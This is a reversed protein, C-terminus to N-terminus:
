LGSAVAWEDFSQAPPMNLLKPDALLAPNVQPIITCRCNPHAPPRISDNLQYLTGNLDRCTPCVREDRAALWRYGLLVEENQRFIEIAGDNSAKTVVTRTVAQVRNFNARYGMRRDTSIGMTDRVRRMIDATGEGANMGSFISVSIRATLENLEVAYTSRWEAGLLSQILDTYDADQERLLGRGALYRAAQQTDYRNLRIPVDKRLVSGLLWARGYYGTLFSDTAYELATAAVDDSLRRIRAAVMDMLAGRRDRLSLQREDADNAATRIDAYASRYLTWLHRVAQEEGAMIRRKIYTEAYRAAMGPVDVARVWDPDLLRRAQARTVPM